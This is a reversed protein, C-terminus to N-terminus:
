IRRQYGVTRNNTCGQIVGNSIGAIGGIDSTGSMIGEGENDDESNKINEVVSEVDTETNMVNNESKQEVTNM